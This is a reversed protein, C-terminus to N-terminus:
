KLAEVRRVFEAKDAPSRRYKLRVVFPQMRVGHGIRAPHRRRLPESDPAPRQDDDVPIVDPTDGHDRSDDTHAMGQIRQESRFRSLPRFRSKRQRDQRENLRSVICIFV